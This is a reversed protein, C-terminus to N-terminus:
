EDDDVPDLERDEELEDFARTTGTRLYNEIALRSESRQIRELTLANGEDATRIIRPRLFLIVETRDNTTTTSTFFRKLLPMHGLIPFKNADNSANVRQLGGLVVLQGDGVSVFSSAQRSTIIPQQADNITLFGGVDEVAQEVELQIVNNSGILPTVSLEIGINQYQVQSSTSANIGSTITGTIIPRREGISISAERNHTTVITPASLIKSRNERDVAQILLPLTFNGLDDWTLPSDEGGIALGGITLPALTFIDQDTPPESGSGVEGRTMTVGLASLGSADRDDLSVEVIVAEIQVQALLVDIQEVLNDLARLDGTTGSAVINNAREDAVLTLFDSFQLNAADARLAAAATNAQDQSARRAAAAPTQPGAQDDRVDKQGSIVQEIITVVETAEAYRISYVKTTTLPAVDIDMKGILENVLAENAPHTFVILQNTREDADFSTNGELRHRLPGTQIQQLRRLVQQAEVNELEFFLVATERESPRDITALLREIRQLNVLSDAVLLIGSKELALPAGQSMIPQILPAAESPSLFDLRFVKEYIMQTAQAGLTTGEWLIPVQTNIAAAPVAKIFDDGVRTLGIGNLALLSQLARIVQARTMPKDGQDFSIKVAPLNQQRLIPKGALLQLQQLVENTGNDVIAGITVTDDMSPDDPDVIGLASQRENGDTPSYEPNAPPRDPTNEASPATRRPQFSPPPPPPLFSPPGSPPEERPAQASLGSALVLLGLSFRGVRYFPCMSLFRASLHTM